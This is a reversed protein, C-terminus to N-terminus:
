RDRAAVYTDVLSAASVATAAAFPLVLAFAAAMIKM